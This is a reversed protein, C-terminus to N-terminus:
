SLVSWLYSTFVGKLYLYLLISCSSTMLLYKLGQFTKESSLQGLLISGLLSTSALSLIIYNNLFDTSITETYPKIWSQSVIKQPLESSIDKNFHSMIESSSISCSFLLPASIMVLVFVMVRSAHVQTRISQKTYERDQLIQAIHFLSKSLGRGSRMGHEILRLSHQLYESKVRQGMKLIAQSFSKNKLVDEAVIKLENGLLGYKENSSRYLAEDITMGSEINVAIMRLCEPLEESAKDGRLESSYFM